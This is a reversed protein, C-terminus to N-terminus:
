RSVSTMHARDGSSCGSCEDHGASILAQKAYVALSARARKAWRSSKFVAIARVSGPSTVGADTKLDWSSGFLHRPEHAWDMFRRHTLVPMNFLRSFVQFEPDVDGSGFVRGFARQLRQKERTEGRGQAALRSEIYVDWLVRYRDRELNQRSPLGSFAERSTGLRTTSCIRWM